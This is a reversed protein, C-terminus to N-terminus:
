SNVDRHMRNRVLGADSKEGGAGDMLNLNALRWEPNGDLEGSPDLPAVAYLILSGGYPDIHVEDPERLYKVFSLRTYRMDRGELYPNTTTISGNILTQKDSDMLM